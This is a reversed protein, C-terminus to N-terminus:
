CLMVGERVFGSDLGRYSQRQLAVTKCGLTQGATEIQIM